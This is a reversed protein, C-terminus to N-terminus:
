VDLLDWYDSFRVYKFFYIFYILVYIYSFFGINLIIDGYNIVKVLSVLIGVFFIDIYIFDRLVGIAILLQKAKIKLIFLFSFIFALIILILPFLFITFLTFLSIFVYGKSYLYFITDLITFTGKYGMIDIQIVPYLNAILFFVFASFSFSFLLYEIGKINNYLVLGCKSCVAVQNKEIKKKYHLTNCKPCIVIKRM